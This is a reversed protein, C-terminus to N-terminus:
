IDKFACDSGRWPELYAAARLLTGSPLDHVDVAGAYAAAAANAPSPFSGDHTWYIVAGATTCTITMNPDAIAIRPLDVRAIPILSHAKSEVNIIFGRLHAPLGMDQEGKTVILDHQGDHSHLHLLRKVLEYLDDARVGTGTNPARNTGKNEIVQLMISFNEIPGPANPSTTVSEPTGIVVCLGFKGNKPLEGKLHKLVYDDFLADGPQEDRYECIIPVYEFASSAGLYQAIDLQLRLTNSSM